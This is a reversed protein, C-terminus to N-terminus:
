KPLLLLHPLRIIKTNRTYTGGGGGGGDKAGRGGGGAGGGGGRKEGDKAFLVLNRHVSLM